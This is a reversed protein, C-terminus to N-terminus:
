NYSIRQELSFNFYIIATCFYILKFLNEREREREREVKLFLLVDYMQHLHNENDITIIDINIYGFYM